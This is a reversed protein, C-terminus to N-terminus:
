LELDRAVRPGDFAVNDWTFTHDHQLPTRLSKDANYHVDELWVLGQTFSLNADTIKAIHVLPTTKGADTAYVDVQNALSPGRCSQPRRKTRKIRYRM